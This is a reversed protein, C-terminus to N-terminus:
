TARPQSYAQQAPAEQEGFGKSANVIAALMLSDAENLVEMRLPSTTPGKADFEGAQVGMDAVQLAGSVGAAGMYWRAGDFVKHLEHDEASREKILYVGPEM